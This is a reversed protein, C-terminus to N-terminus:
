FLNRDVQQYSTGKRYISKPSALSGSPHLERLRGLAIQLPNGTMFEGRTFGEIDIFTFSGQKILWRAQAQPM